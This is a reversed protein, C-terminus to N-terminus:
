NTSIEDGPFQGERRSNGATIELASEALVKWTLASVNGTKPIGFIGQFIRVANETEESYYGSVAVTPIDTYVEALTNINEQVYIVDTGQSGVRLIAGPYPLAIYQFAFDPISDAFGRYVDYLREWTVLDSVGTQELGYVRQFAKLANETAEDFNGSVAIRPVNNEFASVFRLYYQLVEVDRGTSGLSLVDDLQKEVDEYKLGESILENLSKVGNYVYLIRFWTARDVAGSEPIDFIRQFQRVADETDKGYVGDPEFIKPIAPYNNSIRNLRQQILRVENGVSGFDLTVPPAIDGIDEVPVDTVLEINDGYYQVLIDYAGLGMNAYDITGWQSLGDCTTRVGDCYAAFLPEIFGQRRIYSDFIDDVILSINEFIDRGNIFSQDVATSNTIDFDYGQSPYYANYVRNLAYSIQAYINARIAAEPWTPYIEGSAVNKIYDPFSVEVNEASQDPAGLHVRITKPIVPLIAQDNM